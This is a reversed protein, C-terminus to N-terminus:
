WTAIIKKLEQTSVVRGAEIDKESQKARSILEAESMPKLSKEYRAIRRKKQLVEIERIIAEDDLRALWEILTLKREQLGAASINKSTNM